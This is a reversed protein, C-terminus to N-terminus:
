AATANLIFGPVTVASANLIEPVYLSDCHHQNWTTQDRTLPPRDQLAVPSLPMAGTLAGAAYAAVAAAPCSAFNFPKSSWDSLSWDSLRTAGLGVQLLM